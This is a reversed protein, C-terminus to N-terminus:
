QTVVCIAIQSVIFDASNKNQRSRKKVFHRSCKQSQSTSLVHLLCRVNRRIQVGALRENQLLGTGQEIHLLRRFILRIFDHLQLQLDVLEDLQM